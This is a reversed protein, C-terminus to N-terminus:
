HGRNKTLKEARQRLKKANEMRKRELKGDEVVGFLHEGLEYDSRKAGKTLEQISKYTDFNKKRRAQTVKYRPLKKVLTQYQRVFKRSRFDKLPTDAFINTIRLVNSQRHSDWDLKAEPSPRVVPHIEPASYLVCQEVFHRWYPPLELVEVLRDLDSEYKSLPVTLEVSRALYALDSPAAKGRAVKLRMKDRQDRFKLYKKDAFWLNTKKTLEKHWKDYEQFSAFGAHPIKWGLRFELCIKTLKFWSWFTWANQYERTQEHNGIRPELM